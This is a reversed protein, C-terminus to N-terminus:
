CTGGVSTYAGGNVSYTGGTVSIAAAVTIGTVTIADSTIVSSRAVLSQDTFAFQNPTADDEVEGLLNNLQLALLV